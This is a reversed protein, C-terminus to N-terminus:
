PTVARKISKGVKKGARATGIGTHKGFGGMGKGFEKGGRVPRGHVTYHALRKSGRAASHGAQGYAHGIGHHRRTDGHGRRHHHGTANAPPTLVRPQDQTDQITPHPSAIVQTTARLMVPAALFIISLVVLLKRM